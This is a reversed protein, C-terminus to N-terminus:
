TSKLSARLGRLGHRTPFAIGTPPALRRAQRRREAAQVDSKAM